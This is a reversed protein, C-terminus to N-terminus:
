GRVVSASIDKFLLSLLHNSATILRVVALFRKFRVISVLVDLHFAVQAKLSSESKLRVSSIFLSTMSASPWM